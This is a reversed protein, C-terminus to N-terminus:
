YPPQGDITYIPHASVFGPADVQQMAVIGLPGMDGTSLVYTTSGELKEHPLSFRYITSRAVSAPMIRLGIKMEGSADSAWPRSAVETPASFVNVIRMMLPHPLVHLTVLRVVGVSLLALSLSALLGLAASRIWPVMGSVNSIGRLNALRSSLLFRLAVAPAAIILLFSLFEADFKGLFFPILFDSALVDVAALLGLLSLWVVIATKLSTGCQSRRLWIMLLFIAVTSFLLGLLLAWPGFGLGRLHGTLQGELSFPILVGLGLNVGRQGSLDVGGSYHGGAAARVYGPTEVPDFPMVWVGESVPTKSTAVWRALAVTHAVKELQAFEPVEDEIARERQKFEQIFKEVDPDRVSQDRLVAEYNLDLFTGPVVFRGDEQRFEVQRTTFWLREAHGGLEPFTSFFVQQPGSSTGGNGLGIHLFLGKFKQDAFMMTRGISNNYIGPSYSVKMYGERDSPETGITLVPAQNGLAITRLAIAFEAPDVDQFEINERGIRGYLKSGAVFVAEPEADIFHAGGSLAVGGISGTAPEQRMVSEYAVVGQALVKMQEMQRELSTSSIEIESPDIGNAPAGYPQPEPKSPVLYTQFHVKLSKDDTIVPGMGVPGRNPSGVAGQLPEIHNFNMWPCENLMYEYKSEPFAGGEGRLKEHNEKWYSDSVMALILGTQKDALSVVDMGPSGSSLTARFDTVRAYNIANRKNELKEIAREAVWMQLNAVLSMAEVQKPVQGRISNYMELRARDAVSENAEPQIEPAVRTSNHMNIRDREQPTLYFPTEIREERPADETGMVHSMGDLVQILYPYPDAQHDRSDDGTVGSSSFMFLLLLYQCVSRRLFVIKM